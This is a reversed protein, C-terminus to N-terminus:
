RALQEGTLAAECPRSTGAAKARRRPIRGPHLPPLTRMLSISQFEDDVARHAAPGPEPDAARMTVVIV